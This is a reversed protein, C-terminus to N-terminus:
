YGAFGASLFCAVTLAVEGMLVEINTYVLTATHSTRFTVFFLVYCIIYYLIINYLIIYM